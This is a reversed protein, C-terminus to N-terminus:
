FRVVVSLSPGLFELDFEFFNSSAGSKRAEFDVAYYRYALRIGLNSVPYLTAGLEAEIAGGRVGFFDLYFGALKADVEFYKRLGVKVELGLEPYPLVQFGGFQLPSSIDSTDGRLAPQGLVSSELEWDIGLVRVGILPSVAVIRNNLVNLKIQAGGTFQQLKTKLAVGATFTRGNFNITRQLVRSGRYTHPAVVELSLSIWESDFFVEAEGVGQDFFFDSEVNQTVGLDREANFSTGPVNPGFGLAKGSVLGELRVEPRYWMGLRVGVWGTEFDDDDEAQAPATWALGLLAACLLWRTMSRRPRLRLANM